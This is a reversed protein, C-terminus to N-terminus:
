GSLITGIVAAVPAIFMPGLAPYDKSQFYRVSAPLGALAMSLVVLKEGRTQPGGTQAWQWNLVANVFLLVHVNDWSNRAGAKASAYRPGLQALAPYVKQLGM